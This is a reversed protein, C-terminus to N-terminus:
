LGRITTEADQMHVYYDESCSVVTNIEITSAEMIANAMLQLHILSKLQSPLLKLNWVSSVTHCSLSFM